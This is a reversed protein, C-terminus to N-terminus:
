GGLGWGEVGAGRRGEGGPGFNEKWTAGQKQRRRGYARTDEGEGKSTQKGRDCVQGRLGREQYRQLEQAREQGAGTRSMTRLVHCEPPARRPAPQSTLLRCNKGSM